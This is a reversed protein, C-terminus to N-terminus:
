VSGKIGSVLLSAVLAALERPDYPKRMCAHFGAALAAEQVEAGGYATLAVLPVASTRPDRVLREALEYGSVLPMGIDAVIADPLNADIAALAEAASAAKVVAAGAQGLAEAALERADEDDDVVLIRRGRLRALNAHAEFAAPAAGLDAAGVIPLRITFTAGQGKGASDAEITGGHLEVLHRVLALGLGLGSHTRTVTANEQRFRDFVHPLFEPAIGEGSDSIRIVADSDAPAVSADIRGGPPTFKLANSLVNWLVQQLRRQDGSVIAVGRRSDAHITLRRAEATPRLSEIASDLVVALDLPEMVLRINGQIARSMDLLDEILQTQARTNRDIVDFAHAQREPDLSGSRLMALWGYIANLPTRLEHSVTAIFEDKARSLTEAARRAATERALLAAKSRDAEAQARDRERLRTELIAAAERLGEALDHAEVIRSDFAGIPEGRAVSRAAATVTNQARIVRRGLVAAFFLGAV